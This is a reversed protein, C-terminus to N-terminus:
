TGLVAHVANTMGAFGNPALNDLVMVQSFLAVGLLGIANPVPFTHTFTGGAPLEVATADVRVELGCGPIGVLGLDFPLYIGPSLELNDLGHAVVGISVAPAGNCTLLYNTGLVPLATPALTPVGASTACGTGFPAAIATSAGSYVWTENNVTGAIPPGSGAFYVTTGTTPLYAMYGETIKGPGGTGVQTWDNGDYEWTKQQAIASAYGGYLVLRGRAEDYVMGTRYGTLPANVTTKLTWNVGDWEYTTRYDTAPASGNFGGFMVVVGRGKDYAMAPSELGPPVTAPAAQAWTTGDYLWTQNGGTAVSGGQVGYIVTKGRREDFAMSYFARATPSTTPFVQQWNTGDFEWTDNATATTTPSRGGFTVIRARRSDYVMKHGWRPPPTTAPTLQTWAAGDWLWTDNMTLTPGSQLGGYLVAGGAIPHFAIGGARRALITPYPPPNQITWTQAALSLTLALGVCTTSLLNSPHM